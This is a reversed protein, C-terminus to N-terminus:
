PQCITIGAGARKEAALRCIQAYLRLEKSHVLSLQLRISSASADRVGHRRVAYRSALVIWADTFLRGSALKTRM